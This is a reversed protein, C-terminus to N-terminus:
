SAVRRACSTVGLQIVVARLRSDAKNSTAVRAAILKRSEDPLENWDYEIMTSVANAIPILFAVTRLIAIGSRVVVTRVSVIVPRAASELNAPPVLGRQRRRSRATRRINAPAANPVSSSLRDSNSANPVAASRDSQQTTMDIFCRTAKAARAALQNRPSGTQKNFSFMRRPLHRRNSM